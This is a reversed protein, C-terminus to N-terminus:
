ASIARAVQGVQLGRALHDLHAIILVMTIVALVVAVTMSVRPAPTTPEGDIHRLTLVCYVFTAVLLRHRDQSLRDRIFSRLVRPSFQSSALQLSVVTLSFVVRGHHDDCLSRHQAAV